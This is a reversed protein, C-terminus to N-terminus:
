SSMNYAPTEQRFREVDQIPVGLSEGLSADTCTAQKDGPKVVCVRLKRISPSTLYKAYFETFEAHTIQELQRLTSERVRFHLRADVIEQWMRRGMASLNNDKQMLQASLVAKHQQFEADTMAQLTPLFSTVFSEVRALLHRNQSIFNVIWNNVLM